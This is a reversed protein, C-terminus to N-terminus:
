IGDMYAASLPQLWQTGSSVGYAPILIELGRNQPALEIYMANAGYRVCNPDNRYAMARPGNGAANGLDLHQSTDITKIWRNNKKIFSAVTESGSGSVMPKDLIEVFSTPFLLTDPEFNEKTNTYVASCLKNVDRLVNEPTASAWGGTIPSVLPVVGNHNILGTWGKGVDGKLAVNDHFRAIAGAAAEKRSSELDISPKLAIQALERVTLKWSVVITDTDRSTQKGV